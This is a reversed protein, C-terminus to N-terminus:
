HSNTCNRGLSMLFIEPKWNDIKPLSELLVVFSRCKSEYEPDDDFVIDQPILTEIESWVKEMKVLNAEVAEFSRLAANLSAIM